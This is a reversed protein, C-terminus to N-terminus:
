KTSQENNKLQYYMFMANNAVAILHGLDGNDNLNGKKIEIVHRFLANALDNIDMPKKWNYPPYKPENEIRKTMAEVFDFDLEYSLKNDKEKYGQKVEECFTPKEEKSFLEMFKDYTITHKNESIEDVLYMNTNNTHLRFCHFNDAIKLPVYGGWLKYGNSEYVKCMDKIQEESLERCDVQVNELTYFLELANVVSTYEKRKDGQFWLNDHFYVYDCYFKSDISWNGSNTVLYSKIISKQEDSLDGLYYSKTKDLKIM